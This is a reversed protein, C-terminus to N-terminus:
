THRPDRPLTFWFRCGQGPQSDVGVEGGLRDVIRRVISLGLGHGAVSEEGLRAFERFIAAQQVATMGAGNDRVWYRVYGDLPDAGIEVQPPQGGYKIANSLYNTFVAVVWPAYGRAAPLAGEVEICAGSEEALLAVGARARRLAEEMDVVDIDVNVGGGVRALLLLADIRDAMERAREVVKAYAERAMPSADPEDAAMEAYGVIVGIPNRLDHAVARAFSDLDDILQKHTTIEHLVIVQGHSGSPNSVLRKSRAEFVRGGVSVEQLSDDAELRALWAAGDNGVVRALPQDIPDGAAAFLRRAAGNADVVRGRADVALIADDILELVVDRAIPMLDFAFPNRALAYAWLVCQATLGLVTWDFHPPPLLGHLNPIASLNSLLLGAVLLIARRRFITRNRVIELTMLVLASLSCTYAYALHVSMWPGRTFHHLTWFGAVQRVEAPELFWRSADTFLFFQTAVPVAYLAVYFWRALAARRGTIELVVLLVTAPGFAVVGMRAQYIWFHAANADVAWAGLILCLSWACGLSLLPPLAPVNWERRQWWAIVALVVSLPAAVHLTVIYLYPLIEAM